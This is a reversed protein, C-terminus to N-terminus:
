LTILPNRRCPLSSQLIDKLEVISTNAIAASMIKGLGPKGYWFIDIM